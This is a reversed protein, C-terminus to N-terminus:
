KSSLYKVINRFINKTYLTMDSNNIIWSYYGKDLKFVEEITKDKYKGFNFVINGDKKRKLKYELDVSGDEDFAFKDLEEVTKPLEYITELKELIEITATIDASASHAEEFDKNFFRKYTGELTRPEAKTLIKFIDVIKFDKINISIGVRLFEEILIPIDFRKCNFGGLDCGYIFDNIENALESFTPCEYLDELRIGHKGFAEESIPRGQPNIRKYYIIKDNPIISNPIIKIMAIEIIRDNALELGTTEIDIFVIPRTLKM